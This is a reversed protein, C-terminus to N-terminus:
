DAFLEAPAENALRNATDAAHHLCSCVYKIYGATIAGTTSRNASESDGRIHALGVKRDHMPMGGQPDLGYVFDFGCTAAWEEAVVAGIVSWPMQYHRDAQQVLKSVLGFHPVSLPHINLVFASPDASAAASELQRLTRRLSAALKSFDPRDILAQRSQRPGEYGLATFAPDAADFVNCLLQNVYELVSKISARGRADQLAKVIVNSIFLAPGVLGLAAAVNLLFGGFGGFWSGYGAFYAYTWAAASMVCGAITLGRPVPNAPNATIRRELWNWM